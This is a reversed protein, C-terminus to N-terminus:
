LEASVPAAPGQVEILELEFVLVAGPTILASRKSDGYALESPIYLEWHDGEKMMQMAETWGKIVQNPAFATPKGRKFSSDFEEGTITTGRYHCLCKTGVLPTKGAKEGSKLIKYQLGSDTEVVGEKDKNAALFAKGEPTTGALVGAVLALALLLVKLVSMM